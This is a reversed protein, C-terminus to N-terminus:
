SPLHSTKKGKFCPIEEGDTVFYTRYLPNLWGLNKNVYSMEM